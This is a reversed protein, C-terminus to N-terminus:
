KFNRNYILYTLYTTLAFLIGGWLTDIIVSSINWNKIIAYNTAEYVGYIVLGLLFANIWSEGKQLIFYNIGIILFLYSLIAGWINLKLPSGQVKVIQKSFFNGFYSLYISDLLLLIFSSILILSIKM